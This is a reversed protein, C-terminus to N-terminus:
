EPMAWCQFVSSSCMSSTRPHGDDDNAAILGEPSIEGSLTRKVQEVYFAHPLDRDGSARLETALRDILEPSGIPHPRGAPVASLPMSNSTIM